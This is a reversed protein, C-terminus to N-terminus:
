VMRSADHCVIRRTYPPVCDLGVASQTKQKPGARLRNRGTWAMQLAMAVPLWFLLWGPRPSDLLQPMDFQLVVSAYVWMSLVLKGHWDSRQKWAQWGTLLWVILVLLLGPLGLEILTQTLVNHSHTYSQHGIMLLFPGGQGLGLWPHWEILHLSELFLQPRLSAGRSLLPSAPVLAAVLMLAVAGAGLWWVRPRRDWAPAAIVCVAMALWVSRTQTLCVFTLLVALACWRPFYLWRRRVPLQYLWVWAAGMVASAYNATAIVGGGTMRGDNPPDLLYSVCYGAAVVAVGLGIWLIMDHIRRQDDGAWIQWALVFSLISLLRAIEDGPHFVPSWALSVMAWALLALLGRFIPVPLVARWVAARQTFAIFFAPLYLLGILWVQYTKGPNLSVGSPMFLMGIAMWWIGFGVWGRM